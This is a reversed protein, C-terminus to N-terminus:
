DMDFLALTNKYFYKDLVNENINLNMTDEVTEDFSRLPFASGFLIRDEFIGGNLADVYHERGPLFMYVDPSIYLNPCRFMASISEIVYPYCGHGAVLKLDPFDRCIIELYKPHGYDQSIGSFPGTMMVVPVNLDSCLQYIPYLRVDDPYMGQNGGSLGPDLNIGKLGLEKIAYETEELPDHIVGSPDIGALAIIHDKHENQFDALIENPMQCTPINRGPVVSISIGAESMEQFYKEVSGEWYSSPIKTNKREHSHKLMDKTFFGDFEKLPPRSRFDIIM